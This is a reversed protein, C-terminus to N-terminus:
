VRFCSLICASENPGSTPWSLPRSRRCRKLRNKAILSGRRVGPWYRTPGHLDPDPVWIPAEISGVPRATRSILGCFYQVKNCPCCPVLSAWDSANPM